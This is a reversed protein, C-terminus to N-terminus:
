SMPDRVVNQSTSRRTRARTASRPPSAASRAHQAVVPPPLQAVSDAARGGGGAAGGGGCSGSRARATPDPDWNVRQAWPGPGLQGM